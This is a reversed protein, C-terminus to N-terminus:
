GSHHSTAQLGCTITLPICLTNKMEFRWLLSCVTFHSGLARSEKGLSEYSTHHTHHESPGSYLKGQTLHQKSKEKKRWSLQRQGKVHTLLWRHDKEAGKEGSQSRNQEERIHMGMLHNQVGECNQKGQLQQLDQKVSARTWTAAFCRQHARHAALQGRLGGTTQQVQGGLCSTIESPLHLLSSHHPLEPSPAAGGSLQM